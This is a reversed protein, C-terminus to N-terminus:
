DTAVLEGCRQCLYHWYQRGVGYCIHKNSLAFLHLPSLLYIAQLPSWYCLQCVRQFPYILNKTGDILILHAVSPKWDALLTKPPWSGPPSLLEWFRQSPGYFKITYMHTFNKRQKVWRGSTHTLTTFLTSTELGRAVHPGARQRVFSLWETCGKMIWFHVQVYTPPYCNGSRRKRTNIRSSASPSTFNWVYTDWCCNDDSTLGLEALM